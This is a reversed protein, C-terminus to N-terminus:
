PVIFNLDRNSLNCAMAVGSAFHLAILLHAAWLILGRMQM